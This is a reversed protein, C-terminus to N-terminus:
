LMCRMAEATYLGERITLQGGRGVYGEMISTCRLCHTLLGFIDPMASTSCGQEPVTRRGFLAGREVGQGHDLRWPLM